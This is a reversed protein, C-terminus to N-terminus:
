RDIWGDMRGDTRGDTRRDTQMNAHPHARTHVHRDPRCNTRGYTLDTYNHVNQMIMEQNHTVYFLVSCLKISMFSLGSVPLTLAYPVFLFCKCSICLTSCKSMKVYMYWRVACPDSHNLSVPLWEFQPPRGSVIQISFPRVIEDAQFHNINESNLTSPIRYKLRSVLNGVIHYTRGVFGWILRRM